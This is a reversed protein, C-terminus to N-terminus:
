ELGELEAHLATQRTNRDLEGQETRRQNLAVQRTCTSAMARPVGSVMVQLSLGGNRSAGDKRGNPTGEEFTRADWDGEGATDDVEDIHLVERLADNWHM